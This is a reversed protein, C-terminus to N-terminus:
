RPALCRRLEALTYYGATADVSRCGRGLTTPMENQAASVLFSGHPDGWLTWDITSSLPITAATRFSSNARSYVQRQIFLCYQRSCRRRRGAAPLLCSLGGAGTASM